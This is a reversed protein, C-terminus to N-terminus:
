SAYLLLSLPIIQTLKSCLVESIITNFRLAHGTRPLWLTALHLAASWMLWQRQVQLGNHMSALICFICFIALLFFNFSFMWSKDQLGASLCVFVGWQFCVMMSMRVARLVGGQFVVNERSLRLFLFDYAWLYNYSKFNLHCKNEKWFEFYVARVTHRLSIWTADLVVASMNLEPNTTSLIIWHIHCSPSLRVMQDALLLVTKLSFKRSCFNFLDELSPGLLEM